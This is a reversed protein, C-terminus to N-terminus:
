ENATGSQQSMTEYMHKQLMLERDLAPGPGLAEKAEGYTKFRPKEMTEKFSTSFRVSLDDYIDQINEGAIARRRFEVTANGILHLHRESMNGAPTYGLKTRLASLYSKYMETQVINAGEAIGDLLEDAWANSIQESALASMVDRQDLEGMYMRDKFEKYVDPNGIFDKNRDLWVKYLTDYDSKNYLGALMRQDLDELTLENNRIEYISKQYLMDREAKDATERMKELRQREREERAEKQTILRDTQALLNERNEPTLLRSFTSQDTLYDQAEYPNTNMLYRIRGRVADDAFNLIDEETEEFGYIGAETLARMMQSYNIMVSSMQEDDGRAADQIMSARTRVQDSKVSDIAQKTSDSVAQGHYTVGINDLGQLVRTKQDIDKVGKLAERKIEEFYADTDAVLTDYDEYMRARGSYYTAMQKKVDAVVGAYEVTKEAAKVKRAIETGMQELQRGLSDLSKPSEVGLNVPQRQDIVIQPTGIERDYVTLKTM